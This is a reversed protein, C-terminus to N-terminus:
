MFVFRYGSQRALASYPPNDLMKTPIMRGSIDFRACQQLTGTIPPERQFAYPRL